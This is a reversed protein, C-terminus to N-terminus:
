TGAPVPFRLMWPGRAADYGGSPAGLPVTLAGLTLAAGWGTTGGPALAWVTLVDGPRALTPLNPLPKMIVTLTDGYTYAARAPSAGLITALLCALLLTPRPVPNGLSPHPVAYRLRIPMLMGSVTSGGARRM